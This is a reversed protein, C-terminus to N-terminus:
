KCNQITKSNDKTWNIGGSCSESPTGNSWVYKNTVACYYCSGKHCDSESVGELKNSWGAGGSCATTPKVPAWMYNKDSYCAYCAYDKKDYCKGTFTGSEIQEICESDANELCDTFNVGETLNGLTVILTEVIWPVAFVLIAYIVRKIFLQMNKKQVGDDSTVVSKSFDIMGMIILGIPIVIKVIDLILKAFYIVRLIDPNTCADVITSSKNSNSNNNSNNGSSNNNPTTSVNGNCVNSSTVNYSTKKYSNALKKYYEVSTDSLTNGFVDVNKLSGGEYGFYIDDLGPNEIYTWITGYSTVIYDAAQLTMNVPVNYKGTLVLEAIYLLEGQKSQPVVDSFSSNKYTSYNAYNNNTLNIMKEYMTSGSKNNANNLVISATTVRQFFNDESNKATDAGVENYVIKALQEATEKNCSSAEVVNIGLILTIILLINLLIKKKM